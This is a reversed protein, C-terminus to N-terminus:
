RVKDGMDKLAAVLETVNVGFGYDVLKPRSHYDNVKSMEPEKRPRHM